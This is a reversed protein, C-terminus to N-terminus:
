VLIHAKCDDSVTVVVQRRMKENYATAVSNLSMDHLKLVYVPESNNIHWYLLNGDESGSFIVFNSLFGVKICFKTQAYGKYINLLRFDSLHYLHLEPTGRGTNLLLLSNDPSLSASVISEKEVIVRETSTEDVLNVKDIHKYNSYIVYATEEDETVLMNLVRKTKITEKKKSSKYDWIHINCDVGATVMEDSFREVHVSNIADDHAAQITVLEAGTSMSLIKISNDLTGVIITDAEENLCWSGIDEKLPEDSIWLRNYYYSALDIMWCVFVRDRTLGYIFTGDETIKVEWLEDTAEELTQYVVTPIYELECAHRIGNTIGLANTERHVLGFPKHYKCTILEYCLSNRCLYDFPEQILGKGNENFLRLELRGIFMDMFEPNNLDVGSATAIEEPTKLLYLSSLLKKDNDFQSFSKLQNRLLSLALTTNGYSLAQILKLKLLEYTLMETISKDQMSGNKHQDIYDLARDFDQQRIHNKLEDEILKPLSMGSEQELLRYSEEYGLNKLGSLLFKTLAQKYAKQSDYLQTQPDQIMAVEDEAWFFQKAM